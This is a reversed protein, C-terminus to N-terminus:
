LLVRLEGKISMLKNLIDMNFSTYLMFLVTNLFSHNTINKINLFANIQDFICYFMIFILVYFYM